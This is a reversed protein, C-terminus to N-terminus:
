RILLTARPPLSWSEASVKSRDFTNGESANYAGDICLASRKDFADVQLRIHKGTQVRSESLAAMGDLVPILILCDLDLTGALSYREAELIICFNDLTTSDRDAPIIVQGMDFLQWETIGASPQM